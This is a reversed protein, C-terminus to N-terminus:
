HFKKVPHKALSALSNKSITIYNNSNGEFGFAKNSYKLSLNNLIKEGLHGYATHGIDMFNQKAIKSIM